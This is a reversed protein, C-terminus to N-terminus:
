MQAAEEQVLRWQYECCESNAVNAKAAHETANGPAVTLLLFGDSHFVMQPMVIADGIWSIMDM